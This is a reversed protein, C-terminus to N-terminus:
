KTIWIVALVVVSKRFNYVIGLQEQRSDFNEKYINFGHLFEHKWTRAQFLFANIFITEFNNSGGDRSFHLELKQFFFTM